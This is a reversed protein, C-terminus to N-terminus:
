QDYEHAFEGRLTGDPATVRGALAIRELRSDYPAESVRLTLELRDGIEVRVPRVAFVHQQWHTDPAGPATDLVVQPSLRARFFGCMGDLLGAQTLTFSAQQEFQLDQQSARLCDITHLTQPPALLSDTPVIRIQTFRYEQELLPAFDFGYPRGYWYAHGRPDRDEMPALCVEVESPIVRGGPALCRDRLAAFAPYMGDAYVFYGLWESVIVDARVPLDLTEADGQHLQVSSWGNLDLVRRASDYIASCEIGHVERAGAEAAFMCLVGSGAGMDIVTEGPRVVEKIAERFADTRVADLLMTRHIEPRAYGYDAQVPAGGGPELVLGHQRLRELLVRLLVLRAEPSPESWPLAAAIEPLTRTGDCLSVVDMLERSSELRGSPLGNELVTRGEPSFSVYLGAHRVPRDELKQPANM